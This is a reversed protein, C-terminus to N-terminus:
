DGVISRRSCFWWWGWFKCCGDRASGMMPLLMVVVLGLVRLLWRLCIGDDPAAYGGGAGFSTVAM